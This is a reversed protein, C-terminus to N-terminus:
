ATELWNHEDEALRNCVIERVLEDPDDRMPGLRKKDLRLAVEYRVRWDPDECLRGLWGV